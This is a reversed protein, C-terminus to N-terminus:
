NFLSKQYYPKEVEEDVGMLNYMGGGASSLLGSKRSHNSYGRSRYSSPVAFDVPTDNIPDIISSAHASMASDITLAPTESLLPSNTPSSNLIGPTSMSTRSATSIRNLSHRLTKNKLPFKYGLSMSLNSSALSAFTSTSTFPSSCMFPSFNSNSSNNATNSSNTTSNTTNIHPVPPIAGSPKRSLPKLLSTKKPADFYDLYENNPSSGVLSELSSFGTDLATSLSSLLFLSNCKFHAVPPQFESLDRSDRGLDKKDFELDRKDFELDKKDLNRKDFELHSLDLRFDLRNPRDWEPRLESRWAERRDERRWSAIEKEMRDTVSKQRKHGKDFKYTLRVDPHLGFSKARTLKNDQRVRHMSLECHHEYNEDRMEVYGQPLCLDRHKAFFGSYGGELVVVDPYTLHPYIDRNKERDLKRLHLAMAPGRFVSFECHFVFLTRKSRNSETPGNSQTPGNSGNFGNSGNSGSINNEKCDDEKFNNGSKGEEEVRRIFYEELEEKTQINQAGVVHGGEYEYSFRCDVVVVDDFEHNLEGALVRTLTHASIRPLLDADLAFTSLSSTRTLTHMPEFHAENTEFMSQIRRIPRRGVTGATGSSPRCAKLTPRVNRKRFDRPLDPISSPNACTDPINQKSQHPANTSTFEHPTNTSTFERPANTSTFEHTQENTHQSQGNHPSQKTHGKEYSTKGSVTLSEHGSDVQIYFRSTSFHDDDVNDIHDIHDHNIQNNHNNHTNIQNNHNNHNNNHTNHTNNHTNIQNNNHTNNHDNDNMQDNENSHIVEGSEDNMDRTYEGMAYDTNCSKRWPSKTGLGPLVDNSIHNISNNIDGHDIIDVETDNQDIETDNYEDFQDDDMKHHDIRDDIRHDQDSERRGFFHLLLKAVNSVSRFSRVSLKKMLTPLNSLNRFPKRELLPLPTEDDSVGGILHLISPLDDDIDLYASAPRDRKRLPTHEKM